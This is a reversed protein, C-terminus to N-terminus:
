RYARCPPSPRSRVVRRCGGLTVVNVQFESGVRVTSQASLSASVLSVAVSVLLGPSHLRGM